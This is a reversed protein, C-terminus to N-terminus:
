FLYNTRILIGFDAGKQYPTIRAEAKFSLNPNFQYISGLSITLFSKSTIKKDETGELDEINQDMSFTGWLRDFGVLFFPSFYDLGKYQILPGILTRMWSPKGTLTGEVILGPISWEQKLGWYYFVDGRAGVQLDNMSLFNQELTAGFILGDIHGVDLEVSIPLGRFVLGDFKSLSYGVQPAFSFGWEWELRTNLSVIFSNLTSNYADKNWTITRSFYEMGLGSKMNMKQSYAENKLQTFGLSNIM